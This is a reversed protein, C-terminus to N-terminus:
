FPQILLELDEGRPTLISHLVFHMTVESSIGMRNKFTNWLIGAKGEHDQVWIGNENKVKSIANRRYSITAM